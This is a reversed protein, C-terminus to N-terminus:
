TLRFYVTLNYLVPVPKGSYTAPEFRWTKVADVAAQTLGLPLSQIVRVRTVNGTADITAEVIVKGEVRAM